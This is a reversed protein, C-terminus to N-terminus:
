SASKRGALGDEDETSDGEDELAKRRLEEIQADIEPDEEGPNRNVQLVGSEIESTDEETLWSPDPSQDWVALEGSMAGEVLNNIEEESLPICPAGDLEAQAEDASLPRLGMERRFAEALDNWFKDPNADM